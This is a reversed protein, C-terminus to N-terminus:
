MKDTSVNPNLYADLLFGATSQLIWESSQCLPFFYQSPSDYKIESQLM